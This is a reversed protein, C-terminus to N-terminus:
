KHLTEGGNAVNKKQVEPGMGIKNLELWMMSVMISELFAFGVYNYPTESRQVHPFTPCLGKQM